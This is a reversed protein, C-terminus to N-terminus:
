GSSEKSYQSRGECFIWYLKENRKDQENGKIKGM